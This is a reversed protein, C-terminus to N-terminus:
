ASSIATEPRKQSFAQKLRNTWSKKSLLKPTSDISGGQIELKVLRMIEQSCKMLNVEDLILPITPSDPRGQEDLSYSESNRELITYLEDCGDISLSYYMNPSYIQDELLVQLSKIRKHCRNTYQETPPTSPPSSPQSMTLTTSHMSSSTVSLAPVSLPEKEQDRPLHLALETSGPRTLLTLPRLPVKGGTTPNAVFSRSERKTTLDQTPREAELSERPRKPYISSNAPDALQQATAPRSPWASSRTSPPMAATKPRWSQRALKSLRKSSASSSSSSGIGVVPTLNTSVHLWKSWIESDDKQSFRQSDMLLDTTINVTLM